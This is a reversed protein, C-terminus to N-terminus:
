NYHFPQTDLLFLVVFVGFGFRRAPTHTNAPPSVYGLSEAAHREDDGLRQWNMKETDVTSNQAGADAWGGWSDADWGLTHWHAREEVPVKEWPLMKSYLLHGRTGFIGAEWYTANPDAKYYWGTVREQWTREAAPPEVPAVPEVPKKKFSFLAAPPCARPPLAPRPAAAGVAAARPRRPRAAGARVWASSSAMLARM